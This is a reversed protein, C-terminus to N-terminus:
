CTGSLETRGASRTETVGDSVGWKLKRPQLRLWRCDDRDMSVVVLDGDRFVDPIRAVEKFGIKFDFALAPLNTAPVMGFMKKCDLQVFPYHFCVWLLDKTIWNESFGAVHVMISHGTYGAYIAGGVLEDDRVHAICHDNMLDFTTGAAKAIAMGDEWDNARYFSTM